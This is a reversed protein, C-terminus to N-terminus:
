AESWLPQADRKANAIFGPRRSAEPKGWESAAIPVAQIDCNEEILRDYTLGSLVRVETWYRWDGDKLVVAVDADSHDGHDGRARSGFLHLGILRRGYHRAADAAFIALAREVEDARPPRLIEETTKM